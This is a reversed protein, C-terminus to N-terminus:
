LLLIHYLLFAFMENKNIVVMDCSHWVMRRLVQIVRGVLDSSDFRYQIFSHKYQTTM